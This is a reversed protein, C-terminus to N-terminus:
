YEHCACCCHHYGGRVSGVQYAYDSVNLESVLQVLQPSENDGNLLLQFQPKTLSALWGCSYLWYAASGSNSGPPDLGSAQRSLSPRQM